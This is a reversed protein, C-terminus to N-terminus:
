IAQALFSIPLWFINAVSVNPWSSISDKTTCSIGFVGPPGWIFKTVIVGVLWAVIAPLTTKPHIALPPTSKVYM